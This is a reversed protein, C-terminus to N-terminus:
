VAGKGRATCASIAQRLALQVESQSGRTLVQGNETLEYGLLLESDDLQKRIIKHVAFPGKSGVMTRVPEAEPIPENFDLFDSVSERPPVTGFDLPQQERPAVPEFIPSPYEEQTSPPPAASVVVAPIPTPAPKATEARTPAEWELADAYPESVAPAAKPRVAVPATNILGPTWELPALETPQDEVAAVNVAAPARAVPPPPLDRAGFSARGVPANRATSPPPPPPPAADVPGGAFALAPLLQPPPPPASSRQAALERAREAASALRSQRKGEALRASRKRLLWYTAGMMLALLIAAIWPRASLWGVVMVVMGLMLGFVGGAIGLSFNVVGGVVPLMALFGGFFRAIGAGGIIAGVLGLLRFFNASSDGDAQATAVLKRASHTGGSALMVSDGNSARWPKLGDNTQAALMSLQYGSPLAYFMVAQDGLVPADPTGTGGYYLNDSARWRKGALSAKPAPLAALEEPWNGLGGPTPDDGYEYLAQQVVEPNDFRYPGFRADSAFFSASQVAPPPNEHGAPTYFQSSDWIEDDWEQAYSYVTRRNGKRGKTEVYEVWQYTQVYREMAVGTTHVGFLPDIVKGQAVVTATLHVPKGELAANLTSPAAVASRGAEALADSHKKNFGENWFLFGLSLLLIVGSSLSRSGSSLWSSWGGGVDDSDVEIEELM